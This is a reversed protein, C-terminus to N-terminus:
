SVQAVRKLVLPDQPSIKLAAAYSERARRIDGGASYADGLGVYARIMLPLLTNDKAMEIVKKGAFAGGFAGVILDLMPHDLGGRIADLVDALAVGAIPAGFKGAKELTSIDDTLLSLALKYKAQALDPQGNQLYEDAESIEMDIDRINFM